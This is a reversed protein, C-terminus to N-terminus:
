IKETKQRLGLMQVKCCTHESREVVGCVYFCLCDCVPLAIIVLSTILVLGSVM